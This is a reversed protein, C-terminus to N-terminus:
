YKLVLNKKKQFHNKIPECVAALWYVIKMSFVAYLSERLSLCEKRLFTYIQSLLYDLLFNLPQKLCITDAAKVHLLSHLM